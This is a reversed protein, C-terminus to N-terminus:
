KRIKNIARNTQRELKDLKDQIGRKLDWDVKRPAIISIDLNEGLKISKSENVIEQVREDVDGLAGRVDENVEAVALGKVPAYARHGIVWVPGQVPEDTGNTKGNLERMKRMEKLRERREHAKKELESIEFGELEDPLYDYYNEMKEWGNPMPKRGKYSPGDGEELRVYLNIYRHRIKQWNERAHRRNSKLIQYQVAFAEAVFMNSPDPIHFEDKARRKAENLAKAMVLAAKMRWVFHCTTWIKKPNFHISEECHFVERAKPLGTEPVVHGIPWVVKNQYDWKEPTINCDKRPHYIEDDNKTKGLEWEPAYYVKQTPKEFRQIKPEAFQQRRKWLESSNVSSNEATTSCFAIATPRCSRATMLRLLSM